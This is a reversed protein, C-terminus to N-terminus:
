PQSRFIFTTIALTVQDGDKLPQKIGPAIKIGNVSTGETSNEDRIYWLGAEHVFTAHVRSIYQSNPLPKVNIMGKRGITANPQVTFKFGPVSLCELCAETRFRQTAAEETLAYGGTVSAPESLGPAPIKTVAAEMVPRTTTDEENVASVNMLSTACDICMTEFETNLYGCKPCIKVRKAM